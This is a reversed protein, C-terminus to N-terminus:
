RQLIGSGFYYWLSFNPTTALYANNGWAPLLVGVSLALKPTLNVELTPQVAILNFNTPTTNVPIGDVSFPLESLGVVELVLGLGHKDNIVDEVAMRYQILDGFQAFFRPDTATISEVGPFSYTYYLGGYFRFPRINKRLLLTGTLSPSGFHTSPLVSIPPLGGKPVPTGLWATTPLTLFLFSAFSPRASDPNQIIWRHKIGITLDNLGVGNTSLGDISSFTGILSPLIALETNSGVGFYMAELALLQTEQFGPPLGTIGGSDTYQAQTFRGYFFFRANFVGEPLTDAYSVLNPGATLPNWSHQYASLADPGNLSLPVDTSGDQAVAPSGTGGPPSPSSPPATPSAVSPSAALVDQIEPLLGLILWGYCLAVRLVIKGMRKKFAQRM